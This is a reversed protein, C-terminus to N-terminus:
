SPAFLVRRPISRLSRRFGQGSQSEGLRRRWSAADKVFRSHSAKESTDTCICVNLWRLSWDSRLLCLIGDKSWVCMQGRSEPSWILRGRSSSAPTLFQSLWVIASRRAPSTVVSSGWREGASAVVRLSREHSGAFVRYESARRM